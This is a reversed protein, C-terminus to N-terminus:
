RSGAIAVRDDTPDNARWSCQLAVAIRVLQWHDPDTRGRTARDISRALEYAMRDRYGGRNAPLALMRRPFQPADVPPGLERVALHCGHPSRGERECARRRHNSYTPM